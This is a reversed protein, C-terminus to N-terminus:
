PALPPPRRHHTAQEYSFALSLLRADQFPRGLFSVGVPFLGGLFGAPVTVQPLGTTASEECTGPEFGYREQGGEHTSPRAQNAPYVLADLHEADLLRVFVDRFAERGRVFRAQLEAPDKTTKKAEVATKFTSASEPALKGSALLDELTLAKEDPRLGRNLYATWADFLAVPNRIVNKEYLADLEPVQVEVLTAGAAQLERAVGEMRGEAEREGTVGVFRQRLLGLRAGKLRQADLAAVFTVPKREDAERTAPDATDSGTVVDLTRALDGVSRAMPGVADNWPNLPMVGARSTLGRTTRITALSAFGSPNSLSNCTDTGFALPVLNAAVAVASGGSSGATSLTADYANGIRGGLTSIGFDGFPFEDLNTKGLVIAGAARLREVVASDLRPVREALARSGGTTPLDTADINDKFAVPIGHFAGRVSGAAREADRERAVAIARPNLALFAQFRPGSRDYAAIRALFDRVLDESTLVGQELAARLDAVSKESVPFPPLAAPPPWNAIQERQRPTLGTLDPAHALQRAVDTVAAIESGAPLIRPDAVPKPFYRAILADKRVPFGGRPDYWETRGKVVFTVLARTEGPRLRLRYVYGIHAPDFGPYPNEFPDAYMDGFGVLAQSLPGGLVHASPGHGSPGAAPDAVGQANQMVTVFADDPELTRNGNGTAAVSVRGGEEYAGCAGGWAVEVTVAETAFSTFADFYRLTDSTPAAFISRSVAVRGAMVPTISFFREGGDHALGFGRLPTTPVLVQGQAGLVRVKLYGFGNFPFSPGGTAIAGSDTAWASTDQIDWPEGNKAALPTTAAVPGATGLVLWVIAALVRAPM